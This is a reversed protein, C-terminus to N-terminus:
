SRPRPVQSESVGPGLSVPGQSVLGQCGSVQSEPVRSASVWSGPVSVRVCMVRSIPGQSKSIAARLGLIRLGSGQSNFKHRLNWTDQGAGCISYVKIAFCIKIIFLKPMQNLFKSARSFLGFCKGFYKSM